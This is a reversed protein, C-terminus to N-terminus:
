LIAPIRETRALAWRGGFGPFFGHSVEKSVSKRFAPDASEYIVDDQGAALERHFAGVGQEAIAADKSMSCACLLFAAIVVAAYKSAESHTIKNIPITALVRQSYNHTRM